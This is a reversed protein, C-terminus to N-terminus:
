CLRSFLLRRRDGDGFRRGVGQALAVAAHEVEDIEALLPVMADVYDALENGLVGLRELRADLDKERARREAAAAKTEAAAERKDIEALSDKLRDLDAALTAQDAEVARVQAATGDLLLSRM